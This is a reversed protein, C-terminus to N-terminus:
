LRSIHKESLYAGRRNKESAEGRGFESTCALASFAVHIMKLTVCLAHPAARTHKIYIHFITRVCLM